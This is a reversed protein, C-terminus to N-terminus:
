TSGTRSRGGCPGSTRCGLICWNWRPVAAGCSRLVEALETDNDAMQCEIGLMHLPALAYSSRAVAVPHVDESLHMLMALESGVQGNAGLIAIRTKDRM